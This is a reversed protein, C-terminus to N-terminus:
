ERKAHFLFLCFLTTLSCSLSFSLALSPSLSLSLFLDLTYSLSHLHSNLIVQTSFTVMPFVGSFTQYISRVFRRDFYPSFYKKQTNKKKEPNAAGQSENGKCHHTVGCFQSKTL